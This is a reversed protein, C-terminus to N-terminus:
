SACPTWKVGMSAALDLYIRQAEERPMGQLNKWAEWKARGVVDVLGAQEQVCDGQAGQMYYSYLGLLQVNSLGLDHRQQQTAQGAREFDQALQKANDHHRRVRRTADPDDDQPV